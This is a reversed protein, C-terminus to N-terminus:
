CTQATEPTKKENNIIDAYDVNDIQANLKYKNWNFMPICQLVEKLLKLWKEMYEILAQIIYADLIPRIYEYFIDLLMQYIKNLLIRILCKLISFLKDSILKQVDEVSHPDSLDILGAIQFNLIFILMVKPALLCMLIPRVIAM